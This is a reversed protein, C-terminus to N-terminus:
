DQQGRSQPRRSVHKPTPYYALKSLIRNSSYCFAVQLRGQREKAGSQRKQLASQENASRAFVFRSSIPLLVRM